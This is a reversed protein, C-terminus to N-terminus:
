YKLGDVTNTTSTQRFPSWNFMENKCLYIDQKTEFYNLLYTFKFTKSM